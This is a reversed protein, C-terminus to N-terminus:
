GSAWEDRGSAENKSCFQGGAFLITHILCLKKESMAILNKFFLSLNGTNVSKPFFDDVQVM